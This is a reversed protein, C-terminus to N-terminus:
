SKASLQPLDTMTLINSIQASELARKQNYETGTERGNNLDMLVGNQFDLSKSIVIDQRLEKVKKALQCYGVSVYEEIKSGAHTDRYFRMTNYDSFVRGTIADRYVATKTDGEVWRKVTNSDVGIYDAYFNLMTAISYDTCLNIYTETIDTLIEPDLTNVNNPTFVEKNIKRFIARYFNTPIKHRESGDTSYGSKIIYDEFYRVIENQLDDGILLPEGKVREVKM